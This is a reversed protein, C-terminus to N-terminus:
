KIKRYGTPSLGTVMRFQRSFLGTDHFGLDRAVAAVSHQENRLLEAAKAMRFSRAYESPSTGLFYRFQRSLYGTSLGAARAMEEAVAGREMTAVERYIVGGLGTAQAAHGSAGTGTVDAITTIGSQLAELAGLVASDDWDQTSFLEEKHMLQLKWQSYPVDDVLGRMASYELHTHLDVFGPLLAALGFDRVPEDPHKAVLHELDGIEVIRDDRVLVAGHEIHPTAVPLVYRATLIM